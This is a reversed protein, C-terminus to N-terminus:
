EIFLKVSCNRKIDEFSWKLITEFLYRLIEVANEMADPETWSGSPFTKLKGTLVLQYIEVPSLLDCDIKTRKKM